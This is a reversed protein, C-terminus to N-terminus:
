FFYIPICTNINKVFIKKKYFLFSIKNIFKYSNKYFFIFKNFPKYNKKFKKNIFFLYKNSNSKIYTFVDNIYLYFKIPTIKDLILNYNFIFIKKKYHVIFNINKNINLYKYKLLIILFDNLKILPIKLSFCLGKVSSLLNRLRTYSLAPGFNLAISKIITIKIGYKKIKKLINYHFLNYNKNFKLILKGKYSINSYILQNKEYINLIYSM